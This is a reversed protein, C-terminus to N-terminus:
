VVVQRVSQSHLPPSVPFREQPCAASLHLLQPELGPMMIEARVGGPAPRQQEGGGGGGVAEHPDKGKEQGQVQAGPIPLKATDQGMWGGMGVALSHANPPYTLTLPEHM